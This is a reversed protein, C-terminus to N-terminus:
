NSRVGNPALEGLPVTMVRVATRTAKRAANATQATMPNDTHSSTSKPTSVPSWDTAQSVSRM